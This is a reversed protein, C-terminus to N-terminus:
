LIDILEKIESSIKDLLDDVEYLGIEVAADATKKVQSINKELMKQIDEKTLAGNANRTVTHEENELISSTGDDDEFTEGWFDEFTTQGEFVEYEVTDAEAENEENNSHVEPESFQKILKDVYRGSIGLQNGIWDRKTGAPKEDILEYIKEMIKIEHFREEPKKKRQINNKVIMELEERTSEPKNVVSINIYGDGEGADRLKSIALYRTNGGLLTYKRGDIEGNRDVESAYAIANEFQGDDRISNMLAGIFENEAEDYVAENLCNIRVDDILVRITMGLDRTMSDLLGM